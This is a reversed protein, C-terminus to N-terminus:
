LELLIQYCAHPWLRPHLCVEASIAKGSAPGRLSERECYIPAPLVRGDVKARGQM